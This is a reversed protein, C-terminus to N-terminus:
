SGTGYWPRDQVDYCYAFETKTKPSDSSEQVDVRMDQSTITWYLDSQM